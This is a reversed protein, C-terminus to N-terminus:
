KQRFLYIKLIYPVNSLFAWILLSVALCRSPGMLRKEYTSFQNDPNRFRIIIYNFFISLVERVAKKLGHYKLAFRVISRYQHYTARRPYRAMTTSAAHFVPINTIYSTRGAIESRKQYDVEDCFFKFGEDLYGIERVLSSPFCFLMGGVNQGTPYWEIEKVKTIASYWDEIPKIESKGIIDCGIVGANSDAVVVNEISDAWWPHLLLDNNLLCIVECGDLIAQRIGVNNGRAWGFNGANKIIRIKKNFNEQVYSVSHDRSDNDLFYFQVNSNKTKELQPLFWKLNDEGNYNLIIAAIKM